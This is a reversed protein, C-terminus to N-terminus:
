GMEGFFAASPVLINVTNYLTSAKWWAKVSDWYEGTETGGSPVSGDRTRWIRIEFKLNQEKGSVEYMNRTLRVTWVGWM